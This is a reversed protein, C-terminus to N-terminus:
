QPARGEKGKLTIKYRLDTLSNWADHDLRITQTTTGDRTISVVVHDEEVTEEVTLVVGNGEPGTIRWAQTLSM